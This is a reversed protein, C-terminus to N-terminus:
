FKVEIGFNLLPIRYARDKGAPVELNGFGNQITPNTVSYPRARDFNVGEPNKRLYVNLLEFFVNGFGWTYNLFRDVRIDLRHYPKLRRTNVALEDYDPNFVARGSNRRTGGDDGIIPTFVSSTAYKWRAGVQWERTIKYGFIVNVIVTQDFSAYHDFTNDHQNVIRREDASMVIKTEQETPVHQHDNRIARSWSYSIWGYWGMADPPIERKIYLEYGESFGTGDNSYGLRDNYLWPTEYRTYVDQNARVPTTAYPDVVVIDTFYHRFVEAKGLWKKGVKQEVGGGYHEARELRLNPNGSSPSYQNPDPVRHYVGAGSLLTTGTSFKYSMTGRPDAVRQKTLGFYDVRVGPKFELGGLRQTLMLYGSNYGVISSDRVPVNAFDGSNFPDANRDNPDTQRVTTGNSFYQFSRGELGLDLWTHKHWVEWSTVNKLAAWGNEQKVRADIIGITGDIFFINNFYYATTTNSLRSSPRYVYRLGETQFARDIAISAGVFVPDPETTPDWSPRRDVAAAFTDKAGLAYLYFTHNPTPQYQLKFQGDGYRPPRIGDPIYQGITKELYSGRGAAVWYGKNGTLPGSFLANASWISFSAHGGFRKVEDITEISIIGGTADGYEVPYAGTYIDITSILDNHIVSNLGIFHFAYGIPLDDLLYFNANPNAGRVIIEGSGFSPATIGPLTELGRLAEGFSGPIRKVEDVRIRYRSLKQKDKEGTVTVGGDTTVEKKSPPAESTLIRITRGGSLVNLRMQRFDGAPTIVRVTYFGTAPVQASVMGQGDTVYQKRAEIIIVQADPVPDNTKPNVVQIKFDVASLAGASAFLLLLAVSYRLACM